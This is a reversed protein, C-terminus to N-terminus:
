FSEDLTLVKIQEPSIRISRTREGSDDQLRIEYAGPELTIAEDDVRGAALEVGRSDLIQFTPSLARRLGGILEESDQSDFYAGRGMAAFRDFEGQLDLEDIHFGVINLRVNVGSSILREVAQELDGDCTEEGDTLLIVLRNQDEFGQLDELM